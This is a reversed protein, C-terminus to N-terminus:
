MSDVETSMEKLLFIDRAIISYVLIM